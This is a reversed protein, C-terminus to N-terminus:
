GRTPPKRVARYVYFLVLLVNVILWGILLAIVLFMWQLNLDFQFQLQQFEWANDNKVLVGSLRLPLTLNIGDMRVTGITSFWAVPGSASIQANDMLFRCDGWYEWDSQVLQIAREHGIFIEKPM